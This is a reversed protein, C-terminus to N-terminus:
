CFADSFLLNANSEPFGLCWVWWSPSGGRGLDSLRLGLKLPSQFSLLPPARGLSSTLMPLKRRGRSTLTGPIFSQRRVTIVSHRWILTVDDTDGDGPLTHSSCWDIRPSSHCPRSRPCRNTKRAITQSRRKIKKQAVRQDNTSGKSFRMVAVIKITQTQWTCPKATPVKKHVSYSMCAIAM